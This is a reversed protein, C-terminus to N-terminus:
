SAEVPVLTFTKREGGRLAVVPFLEGIASAQLIGQLDAHKQVPRNGVTVLLDGTRVGALAAPKGHEVHVVELGVPQELGLRRRWAAPIPRPQTAIGLYARRVRGERILLGAVWRATNIPIAFCIGQAGPHIATNVGIVRGRSDVLPGGSNGPNLAADTQIVNEILRKGNPAPLTRGLASIVGATVTTQLGHPNGIAIAVQGVRLRESDGLATAPFQAAYHGKVRLVALDTSPDTGVSEVELSHGDPLVAELQKASEVVHNNTLVYGDPTLFFGSGAGRVEFPGRRTRVEGLVSINVVAPSVRTVVGSVARSYADLLAEEEDPRVDGPAVWGPLGAPAAPQGGAWEGEAWDIPGMASM